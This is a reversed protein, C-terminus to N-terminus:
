KIDAVLESIENASRRMSEVSATMEKYLADDKSLKGLNGEGREIRQMMQEATAASRNFSEAIVEARQTIPDLRKIATQLEPAGTVKELNEANRKLSAELLKLEERQERSTEHLSKMLARMEEGTGHIDGVFRENM